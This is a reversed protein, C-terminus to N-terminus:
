RINCNDDNYVAREKDYLAASQLVVGGLLLM